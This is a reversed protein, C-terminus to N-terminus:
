TGMDELLPFVLAVARGDATALVDATAKGDAVASLDAMVDGILVGPPVVLVVVLLVSALHAAGEVPLYICNYSENAIIVTYHTVKM